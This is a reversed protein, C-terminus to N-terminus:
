KGIFGGINHANWFSWEPFFILIGNKSVFIKSYDDTTYKGCIDKTSTKQIKKLLDSNLKDFDFEIYYNRIDTLTPEYDEEVVSCAGSNRIEEDPTNILASIFDKPIVSDGLIWFEFIPINYINGSGINQIRQVVVNKEIKKDLLYFYYDYEKEVEPGNYYITIKGSEKEIDFYQKTFITYVGPIGEQSIDVTDIREEYITEAPESFRNYSNSETNIYFQMQEEWESDQHDSDINKDKNYFYLGSIALSIALLILLAGLRNIKM